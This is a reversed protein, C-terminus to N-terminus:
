ASPVPGARFAVGVYLPAEDDTVECLVRIFSHLVFHHRTAIDNMQDPTEGCSRGSFAGSTRLESLTSPAPLGTTPFWLQFAPVWEWFRSKVPRSSVSIKVGINTGYGLGRARREQFNREVGQTGHSLHWRSSPM